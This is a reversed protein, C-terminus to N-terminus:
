EKVVGSSPDFPSLEAVPATLARGGFCILNYHWHSVFSFRGADTRQLAQQRVVESTKNPLAIM